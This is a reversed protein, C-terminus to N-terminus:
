AVAGAGPWRCGCLPHAPRPIRSAAGTPLLVEVATNAWDGEPSPDDAWARILLATETALLRCLLRDGPWMPLRGIVQSIQLSVLPWAADSDRQHLHGCRLCSTAGPIVLPGVVGRGGYAAVVLHPEDHVASDCEEVIGPHTEEALVRLNVRPATDAVLAMGSVQIAAAVETALHGHGIVSVRTGLRRELMHNAAIPDRYTLAAAALDAQVEDRETVGMWRLRDPMQAADDIAGALFAIRLLRLADVPQVHAGGAGNRGLQERAHHDAVQDWTRLGNLGTLWAATLHSVRDVIPADLATGIQLTAPGRWLLPYDRRLEPRTVGPTRQALSEPSWDHTLTM